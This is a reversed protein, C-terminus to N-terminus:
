KNKPVYPRSYTRLLGEGELIRELKDRFERDRWFKEKEIDVERIKVGMLGYLMKTIATMRDDTTKGATVYLRGVMTNLLHMKYPNARFTQSGDTKKFSKVELWQKLGPIKDVFPYVWNVEEIPRGFFLNRGTTAEIPYKLLPSIESLLGEATRKFSGRSLKNLDELPLGLGYIYEPLKKDKGPLRIPLGEQMYEPLYQMENKNEDGSLKQIAKGVGAYKGPTKLMQEIQLPMNGRTWRYFPILRRLVDKEFTTLGEPTYDFHFKYVWKVAEQPTDGKIIRDIFLPMRLRNEVVEMVSKPVDFFKGAIGKQLDKEVERMVDLYGPQGTAGMKVAMDKLEKYSYKTGLKTTISGTKGRVINDAQVYRTPNKVGALWNNFIGGMFNRSHFAPFWGTVSGKWFALTKDYLKLFHKTTEENVLFQYTDDVHQVIPKPLLIGKLQPVSSEVYDIGAEFVPKAVEKIYSKGTVSNTVSKSVFQGPRGFERGVDTLFDYTRIAKINEAKRAAFAKFADEEFLKVGHFKRFYANIEKITGQLSRTQAFPTRVRLPKSLEGTISAGGREIFSKGEKTLFHRLYDPMEAEILERGKEADLFRKHQNNMFDIIQDVIKNGTKQGTEIAETTIAGAKKGIAKQAKKGLRSALKAAEDVETRTGKAFLSYKDVYKEGIQGPLAKIESFPVFAKSLPKKSAKYVKGTVPMVEMLKDVMKLPTTVAARPAIQAGMFKLGGKALYKQGGKRLVTNAVMRRGAEEGFQSVAKKLLKTGTKNLIKSGAQTAVKAGSGYGFTLYTTPDLLIDVALGGVKNKINLAESPLIKEKVGAKIGKGSILGGTAYAGTNLFDLIKQLTSTKAERDPVAVGQSSAYDRLGEITQVDPKKPSTSSITGGGGFIRGGSSVKKTTSNFIRGM